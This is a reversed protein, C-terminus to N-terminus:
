VGICKKQIELIRLVGKAPGDGGVIGKMMENEKRTGDVGGAHREIKKLKEEFAEVIGLLLNVSHNSSQKLNPNSNPYLNFNHNKKAEEGEKRIRVEEEERRSVVEMKRPGVGLQALIKSQFTNSKLHAPLPLPDRLPSKSRSYTKQYSYM